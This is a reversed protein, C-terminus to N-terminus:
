RRCRMREEIRHEVAVGEAFRHVRSCIEPRFGIGSETRCQTFPEGFPGRLLEEAAHRQLVTKAPNLLILGQRHASDFAIKLMKVDMTATGNSKGQETQSTRYEELDSATVGRLSKDARPGPSALFGKVPPRYRAATGSTRTTGKGALWEKLFIRVSPVYLREGSSSEVM